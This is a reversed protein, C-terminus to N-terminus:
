IWFEWVEKIKVKVSKNGIVLYYKKRTSNGIEM